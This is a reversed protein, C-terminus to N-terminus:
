SYITNWTKKSWFKTQNYRYKSALVFFVSHLKKRFLDLILSSKWLYEHLGLNGILLIKTRQGLISLSTHCFKEAEVGLFKMYNTWCRDNIKKIGSNYHKKLCQQISCQETALVSIRARTKKENLWIFIKAHKQNQLKLSAPLKHIWPTQDKMEVLPIINESM